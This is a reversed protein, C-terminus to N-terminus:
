AWKKNLINTVISIRDDSLISNHVQVEHIAIDASASGWVTQTVTSDMWGGLSWPLTAMDAGVMGSTYTWYATPNTLRVKVYTYYDDTRLALVAVRLSNTDRTPDFSALPDSGSLGLPRDIFYVTDNGYQKRLAIWPGPLNNAGKGLLYAYQGTPTGMWRYAVVWTRNFAPVTGPMVLLNTLSSRIALRTGGDLSSVRQLVANTTGRSTWRVDVGDTGISPCWTTVSGDVDVASGDAQQVTAAQSVDWAYTPVVVIRPRSSALVGICIGPMIIINKTLSLSISIM